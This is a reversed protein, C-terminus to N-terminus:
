VVRLELDWPNFLPLDLSAFHRTNRTVLVLDHQLATAAILGDAMDLPSGLLQRRATLLGWRDAIMGTIPLIRSSFRGPLQFTLWDELSARREGLDLLEVGKRLEGATIASIHLDGNAQSRLWREVRPEPRPRTPESVVNTDLLFGSSM